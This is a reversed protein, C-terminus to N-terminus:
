EDEFLALAAITKEGISTLAMKPSCEKDDADGLKLLVGECVVDSKIRELLERVPELKATIISELEGAGVTGAHWQRGGGVELVIEDVIKM